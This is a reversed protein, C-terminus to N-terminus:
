LSPELWTKNIDHRVSFHQHPGPRTSGYQRIFGWHLWSCKQIYVDSDCVTWSYVSIAREKQKVVDSEHLQKRNNENVIQTYKHPQNISQLKVLRKFWSKKLMANLFVNLPFGMWEHKMSSAREFQIIQEHIPHRIAGYIRCYHTQQSNVTSMHNKREQSTIWFDGSFHM